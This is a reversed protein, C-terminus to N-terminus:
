QQEGKNSVSERGLGKQDIVKQWTAKILLQLEELNKPQEKASVFYYFFLIAPRACFLVLLSLCFTLMFGRLRAKTQVASDVTFSYGALASSIETTLLRALIDNIVEPEKSVTEFYLEGYKQRAIQELLYRKETGLDNCSYAAASGKEPKSKAIFQELGTADEFSDMLQEVLQPSEINQYEPFQKSSCVILQLQQALQPIQQQFELNRQVTDREVAAAWHHQVYLGALLCILIKLRM